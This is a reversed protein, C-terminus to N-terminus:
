IFKSGEKLRLILITGVSHGLVIAENWVAECTVWCAPPLWLLNSGGEAVWNNSTYLNHKINSDPSFTGSNISRSHGELRQPASGIAADWLRVTKDFSASM